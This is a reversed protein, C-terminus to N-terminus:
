YPDGAPESSLGRVVLAPRRETLENAAERGVRDAVLEAAEALHVGRSRTGHADSGLLDVWGAAVLGWAASAVGRGWRGLLSPTVVQVLAGEGRADEILTPHRHVARSREPHGFIPVLGAESLRETVIMFLGPPSDALVEVLLYRGAVSRRRLEDMPESVALHPGIEAALATELPVAADVLAVRLEALRESADAHSTPFLRSYHPTCLAFSVGDETLRRALTVSEAVTAPGDDLAPLLHCHTDIM